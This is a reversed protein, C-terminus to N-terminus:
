RDGLGDTVDAEESVLEMGAMAAQQVILAAFDDDGRGNGILGQVLQHTLAVTPLTVGSERAAALGLELEKTLLRTTFTPHFDLNVLAPTKYGSFVSGLVSRNLFDLFSERTVGLRECLITVEALAQTVVALYLNHAIKVNRALENEGVYTASGIHELLERVRDFSDEPGSVAFMMRGVTVVSPNCSVPAALFETGKEGAQARLTASEEVSITSCEVLIGPGSEATLLGGVGNMVEDLARGHALMSFVVDCSALDSAHEVLAAGEDVVAQAKEPTRNWVRVPLGAAILRQCMAEGMRGMGVWGVSLESM